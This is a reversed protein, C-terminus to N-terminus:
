HYSDIRPLPTSTRRNKPWYPARPLLLPRGRRADPGLWHGAVQHAQRRRPVHRAAPPASRPGATRASSSQVNAASRSFLGFRRALDIVAEQAACKTVAYQKRWEALAWNYAHRATGAARAFYVRQAANPDLAIKHALLMLARGSM